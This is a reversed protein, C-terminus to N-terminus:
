HIVPWKCSLWEMFGIVPNLQNRMPNCMLYDSLRQESQLYNDRPPL